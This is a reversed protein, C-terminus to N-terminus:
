ATVRQGGPVLRGRAMLGKTMIGALGMGVIGTVLHLVRIIWHSAGPLIQAQSYGLAPLVVCWVVTVVSLLRSGGGTWNQIALTALSLVFVIGIGMHLPTLQLLGGFWFFIGLLLQIVGTIGILSRTVMVGKSM